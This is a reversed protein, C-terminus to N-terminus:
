HSNVFANHTIRAKNFGIKNQSCPAQGGEPMHLHLIFGAHQSPVWLAAWNKMRIARSVDLTASRRGSLCLVPSLSFFILHICSLYVSSHM